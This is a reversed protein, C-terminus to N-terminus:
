RDGLEGQAAKNQQAIRAEAQQLTCSFGQLRDFLIYPNGEVIDRASSFFRLPLGSEILVSFINGVSTTDDLHSFALSQPQADHCAELQKLMDESKDTARLLVIREDVSGVLSACLESLDSPIDLIRLPVTGGQMSLPPNQPVREQVEADIQLLSGYRVFAEAEGVGRPQISVMSVAEKHKSSDGWNFHRALQVVATTCGVGASGLVAVQRPACGFSLARVDIDRAILYLAWADVLDKKRLERVGLKDEIGRIIKDCVNASFGQSMMTRRLSRIPGTTPMAIATQTTKAQAELQKSLEVVLGKLERLEDRLTHEPKDLRACTESDSADSVVDSVLEVRTPGVEESELIALDDSLSM